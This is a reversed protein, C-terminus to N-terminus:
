APSGFAIFLLAAPHERGPAFHELHQLAEAVLFADARIDSSSRDVDRDWTSLM